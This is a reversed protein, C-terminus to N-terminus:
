YPRTPESIHILSLITSANTDISIIVTTGVTSGAKNTPVTTGKHYILEMGVVIDTLDAVKVTDSDEGDGEPNSSIAETTQFYWDSRVPQRILRLGFGNADTEVNEITWSISVDTSETETASATLTSSPMTKMGSGTNTPALTLVTNAVQTISKSLIYKGTAKSARLFETNTEPTSFLLITYTVGSAAPFIITTGYSGGSLTVNLNNSSGFGNAFTQTTFNYFAGSSNSIQMNFKSGKDGSITLQRSVGSASMDSLDMDFSSIKFTDKLGTFADQVLEGTVTQHYINHAM